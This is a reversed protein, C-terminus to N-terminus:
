FDIPYKGHKCMVETIARLSRELLNPHIDETISLMFNDGPAVSKLIELACKKVAEVGSLCVSEPFNACIIMKDRWINRAESLSLDGQPPPTFAEVVDVGTKPIVYRMSALKGDLHTVVVKEKEHFSQVWKQYFPLDFKEFIKPGLEVSRGMQVVEAPSDAVIQFAQEQKKEVVNLLEKFEESHKYLDISVRPLGMIKVVLEQFPTYGVHALVYGDEGVQEDLWIYSEYNPHYVIDEYIFKVVDYDSVDKIMHESIWPIYSIDLREKKSVEGVPTRYTTILFKKTGQVIPRQIVEVNPMDVTYIPGMQSFRPSVIIGLGKNRLEREWSGRPLMNGIVYTLWPIREPEKRHFVAMANERITM